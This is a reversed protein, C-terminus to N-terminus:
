VGDQSPAEVIDVGRFDPGFHKRTEALAKERAEEISDAEVKIYKVSTILVELDFSKKPKVLEM